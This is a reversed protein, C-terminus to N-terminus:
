QATVFNSDKCIKKFFNVIDSKMEYTDTIFNNM